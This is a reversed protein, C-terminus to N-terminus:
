NVGHNKKPYIIPDIYYLEDDIGRLVNKSNLDSIIYNESSYASGYKIFGRKEMDVDIEQQTVKIGKMSRVYAQELVFLFEGQDYRIGTLMYATQPFIANHVIIKNEVFELPTQHRVWWKTVKIVKYEGDDNWLYVDAEVGKKDEDLLPSINNKYRSIDWNGECGLYFLLENLQSRIIDTTRESNGKGRRLINAVKLAEKDVVNARCEKQLPLRDIEQGFGNTRITRGIRSGNGNGDENM